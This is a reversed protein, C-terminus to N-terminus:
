AVVTSAESARESISLKRTDFGQFDALYELHDGFGLLSLSRRRFPIIPNASRTMPGDLQTGAEHYLPAILPTIAPPLIEHRQTDAQPVDETTHPSSPSPGSVAHATVSGLMGRTPSNIDAPPNRSAKLGRLVSTQYNRRYVGSSMLEQEFKFSVTESITSQEDTHPTMNSDVDHRAFLSPIEDKM